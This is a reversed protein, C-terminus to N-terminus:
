VMHKKLHVFQLVSSKLGPQYCLRQILAQLCLCLQRPAQLSSLKVALATVWGEVGSRLDDQLWLPKLDNKPKGHGSASM